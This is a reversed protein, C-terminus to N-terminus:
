NRAVSIEVRCDDMSYGQSDIKQIAEKMKKWGLRHIYLATCILESNHLYYLASLKQIFGQVTFGGEVHIMRIYLPLRRLYVHQHVAQKDQLSKM